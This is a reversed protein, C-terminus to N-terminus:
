LSDPSQIMALIRVNTCFLSRLFHVMETICTLSFGGGMSVRRENVPLFANSVTVVNKITALDLTGPARM